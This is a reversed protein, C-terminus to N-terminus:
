DTLADELVSHPRSDQFADAAPYTWVNSRPRGRKGLAINNVQAAVGKKFLPLLKHQSPYLQGACITTQAWVVLDLPTLGLATAAAHVMPLGRWDMLSGLLCGDVLYPVVATMRSRHFALFDADTM